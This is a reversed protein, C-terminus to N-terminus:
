RHDTQVIKRIQKGYKGSNGPSKRYLGVLVSSGSGALILLATVGMGSYQGGFFVVTLALLMLYYIGGAGLGVVARKHKVRLWATQAALYGGALLIILAAYGISDMRIWEKDLMKGAVLAGVVSFLLGAFGGALIGAPLSTARGQKM